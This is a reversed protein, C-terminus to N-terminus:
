YTVNASKYLESILGSEFNQDQDSKICEPLGYHVVFQDYIAQGTCKATQSSTVLAESYTM